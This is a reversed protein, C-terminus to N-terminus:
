RGFAIAVGFAADPSVIVDDGARVHALGAAALRRAQAAPDVGGVRFLAYHATDKPWDAHDIGPYAAAFASPRRLTVTGRATEFVAHGVDRRRPQVDLVRAFFDLPAALEPTRLVIETVATAGNAHRQFEPKWFLRPAHQQCAFAPAEPLAPDTAFALTFAVRATSGDPLRADRGFHFPPRAPLGRAAHRRAEAAADASEVVLMSCGERRALFDRNYAGFAFNGAAAAGIKDPEAVALLELFNRGVFQALRNATGWPHLARPTLTFGLREYLAAARDLDRVALVLHDIGRDM